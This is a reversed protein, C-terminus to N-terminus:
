EADELAKVRTDLANYKTELAEIDTAEGSEGQELKKIRKIINYKSRAKSM